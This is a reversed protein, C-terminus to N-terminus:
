SAAPPRGSEQSLFDQSRGLRSEPGFFKFYLRKKIKPGFIDPVSTRFRVGYISTSLPSEHLIGKSGTAPRKRSFSLGSKKTTNV